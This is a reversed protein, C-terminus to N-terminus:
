RIANDLGKIAIIVIVCELPFPAAIKKKLTISVPLLYVARTTGNSNYKEKWVCGDTVFFQSFIRKKSPYPLIEAESASIWFM